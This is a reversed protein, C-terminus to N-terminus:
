FKVKNIAEVYKISCFNPDVKSFDEGFPKRSIYNGKYFIAPHNAPGAGANHYIKAENYRSIIDTAWSFDLEKVVKTQLGRKWLAYNVAWMDATWSQYGEDESKFFTRNIYLMLYKRIEICFKEVDEWFTYDINKLLYQAGGCNENNTAIVEPDLGVINALGNIVLREPINGQKEKGLLYQSGVYSITDSEYCYEDDILSEFNPLERFIIDSDHYFFVKDKFEEKYLYFHKALIHPRLQPIYLGLDVGTDEYFFFQVEPYKSQIVDWGKNIGSAPYWILVHMKDSIGHERFNEVQVELQWNFYDDHPQASIFILNDLKNM